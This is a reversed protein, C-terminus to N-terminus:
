LLPGGTADDGPALHARERLISEVEDIHSPTIFPKVFGGVDLILGATKKPRAADLNAWYRPNATGWIRGRGSLAGIDVRRVGRISSYAISKTGWPFYYWHIRLRDPSCEISGDVYVDDM